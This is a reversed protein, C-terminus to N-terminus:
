GSTTSPELRYLIVMETDVDKWLDLKAGLVTVPDEIQITGGNQGGVDM